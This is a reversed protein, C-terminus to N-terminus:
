SDSMFEFTENKKREAFVIKKKQIQEKRSKILQVTTSFSRQSKRFKASIIKRTFYHSNTLDIVHFSIDFTCVYRLNTGFYNREYATRRM